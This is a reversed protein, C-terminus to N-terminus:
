MGVASARREVPADRIIKQLKDLIVNTSEIAKAIATTSLPGTIGTASLQPFSRSLEKLPEYVLQAAEKIHQPIGGRSTAKDTAGLTRLLSMTMDSIVDNLITVIRDVCMVGEAELTGSASALGSSISLVVKVLLMVGDRLLKTVSVLTQSRDTTSLTPAVSPMADNVQSSASLYMTEIHKKLRPLGHREAHRLLSRSFPFPSHTAALEVCVGFYDDFRSTAILADLYMRNAFASITREPKPPPEKKTTTVAVTAEPKGSNAAAPDGGMFPTEYNRVLRIVEEDVDDRNSM